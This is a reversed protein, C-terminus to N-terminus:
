YGPEEAGQTSPYLTIQSLRSLLHGHHEASPAPGPGLLAQAPSEDSQPAPWNRGDPAATGGEGAEARKSLHLEDTCLHTYTHTYQIHTYTCLACMHM